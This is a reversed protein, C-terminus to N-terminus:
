PDQYQLVNDGAEPQWPGGACRAVLAAKQERNETSDPVTVEFAGDAFGKRHLSFFRVDDEPASFLEALFPRMPRGVNTDSRDIGVALVGMKLTGARTATRGPM